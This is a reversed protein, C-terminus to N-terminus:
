QNLKEKLKEKHEKQCESCIYNFKIKDQEKTKIITGNIKNLFNTEIKSDCLECKEAM